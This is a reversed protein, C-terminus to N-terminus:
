SSFQVPSLTLREEYLRLCFSLCVLSLSVSANPSLPIAIRPEKNRTQRLKGGNRLM